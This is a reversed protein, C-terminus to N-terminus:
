LADFPSAGRKKQSSVGGGGGGQLPQTNNYEDAAEKTAKSKADAAIASTISDASLGITLLRFVNEPGGFKQDNIVLHSKGNEVHHYVGAEKVTKLVDAPVKYGFKDTASTALQIDALKDVNSGWGKQFNALAEQQKQQAEQQAKRQLEPNAKQDAEAKQSALFKKAEAGAERLKFKNRAMTEEDVDEETLGVGYDSKLIAKLEAETADPYKIKMQEKVADEHSLTNPDIKQLREFHSLGVGGRHAHIMKLEYDNLEHRKNLQEQLQTREQLQQKLTESNHGFTTQLYNETDFEPQSPADTTAPASASTTASETPTPTNQAQEQPLGTSAATEEVVSM